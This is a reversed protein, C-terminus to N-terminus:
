MQQSFSIYAVGGGNALLEGIHSNYQELQNVRLRRSNGHEDQESLCKTRMFDGNLPGLRYAPV